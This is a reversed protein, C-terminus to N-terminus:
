GPMTWFYWAYFLAWVLGLIALRTHLSVRPAIAASIGSFLLAAGLFRPLRVLPTLLLFPLLPRGGTGAALAYLKYPVGSISGQLMGVAGENTLQNHAAEALTDDIAPLVLIAARAGGPDANAWCYTIAGGLAAALSAAIAAKVGARWGWRVAIVSIPVDAVIFFLIAEAFSWGAAVLLLM